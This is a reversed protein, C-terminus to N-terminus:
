ALRPRAVLLGDVLGWDNTDLDVLTQQWAKNPLGVAILRYGAPFLWNTGETIPPFNTAYVLGNVDQCMWRQKPNRM